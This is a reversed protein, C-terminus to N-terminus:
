RADKPLFPSYIDFFTPDNRSNSPPLVLTTPKGQNDELAPYIASFSTSPNLVKPLLLLESSLSSSPLVVYSVALGDESHESSGSADFGITCTCPTSARIVDRL